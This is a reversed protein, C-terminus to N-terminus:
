QVSAHRCNAARSGAPAATWPRPRGHWRRLRRAFRGMAELGLAGDVGDLGQPM